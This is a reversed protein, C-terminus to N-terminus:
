KNQPPDERYEDRIYYIGDFIHLWKGRKKIIMAADFEQDRFGEAFRLPEFDVFAYPANGTALAIQKEFEGTEAEEKEPYTLALSYMKDGLRDYLAEGMSQFRFYFLSDPLYTTQSIDKAGHFNACWVILKEDPYNRTILLINEAMQIDRNRSGLYGITPDKDRTIMTNENRIWQLIAKFDNSYVYKKILYHTINSIKDIIRMYEHFESVSNEKYAIKYFLRNCREWPIEEKYEKSYRQLIEQAAQLYFIGSWIDIGWPRIEGRTMPAILPENNKNMYLGAWFQSIDWGKVFERYEPNGFLYTTFFPAAELAVSKFGKKGLYNIMNCKTTASVQDYHGKECLIIVSKSVAIRDLFSFDLSDQLPIAQNAVNKETSVFNNWVPTHSKQQCGTAAALFFFLTLVYSGNM